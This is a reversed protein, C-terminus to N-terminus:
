LGEFSEGKELCECLARYVTAIEERRPNSGLSAAIRRSLPGEGLIVRLHPSDLGEAKGLTELLYRWIENATGSREPYSFLELYNRDRVV